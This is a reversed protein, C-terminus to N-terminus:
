RSSRRAHICYRRMEPYEWVPEVLEFGANQAMSVILDDHEGAVRSETLFLRTGPKTHPDLQEFFSRHIQWDRDVSRLEFGDDIHRQLAVPFHPPDGFVLDWVEHEPVDRLNDSLYVSVRDELGNMRITERCAAVAVPNIDALTLRECLGAGLLAFGMYGPGACWEFAHDVTGVHERIMRVVHPWSRPGGGDLESLHAVNVGACDLIEFAQDSTETRVAAM